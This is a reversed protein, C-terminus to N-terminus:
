VAVATIAKVIADKRQLGILANVIEGDKFIILCPISQIKMKKTIAPSAETNMKNISVVVNNEVLEAAAQELIPTQMKCPGCWDAWFDVLVLGSSTTSNFEAEDNIENINSM